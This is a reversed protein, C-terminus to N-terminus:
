IFFLLLCPKERRRNMCVEAPMAAAIAIADASLAPGSPQQARLGAAAGVGIAILTIRLIAVAFGEINRGATM